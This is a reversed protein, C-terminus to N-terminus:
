FYKPLSSGVLSRAASAYTETTNEHTGDTYWTPRGTEPNVGAYERLYYTRVAEGQRLLMLGSAPDTIDQADPLSTITNKNQAFNFDVTWSFDKSRVPIANVTLEIGKNEMEGINVSTSSF